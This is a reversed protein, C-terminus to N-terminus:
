KHDNLVQRCQYLSRCMVRTGQRGPSLIEFPLACKKACNVYIPKGQTFFVSCNMCVSHLAGSLLSTWLDSWFKQARPMYSTERQLDLPKFKFFTGVNKSLKRVGTERGKLGIKWKMETRLEWKRMHTVDQM